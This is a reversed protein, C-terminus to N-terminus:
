RKGCRERPEAVMRLEDANLKKSKGEKELGAKAQKIQELLERADGNTPLHAVLEGRFAKAL